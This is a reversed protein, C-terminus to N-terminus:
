LVGALHAPSGARRAVEKPELELFPQVGHRKLDKLTTTWAGIQAQNTAVWLWGDPRYHANIAHRRCFSGIEAVANESARALRLAEKTSCLKLLTSFKAWWSLVFGGNRGSAGGGCLDAEILIIDLEPKLEKLHIATWLGTYGGGVICVDARHDGELVRPEDHEVALAEELWLSRKTAAHLTM